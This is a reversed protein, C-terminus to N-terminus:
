QTPEAAFGDFTGIQMEIEIIDSIKYVSANLRAEVYYFCGKAIDGRAAM